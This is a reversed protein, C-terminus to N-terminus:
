VTRTALAPPINAAKRAPGFVAMQGVAWLVIMGAPIYYWDLAKLEFMNV